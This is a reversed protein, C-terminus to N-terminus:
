PRHRVIWPRGVWAGRWYVPGWYAPPYPAYVWHDDAWVWQYWGPGYAVAPYYPGAYVFTPAGARVIYGPPCSTPATSGVAAGTVAGVAGGALAGVGRGTLAAGTIAGLAGGVIAGAATNGTRQNVCNAAAWRAYQDAYSQAAAQAQADSPAPAAPDSNDSASRAYAPQQSNPQGSAPATAQQAWATPTQIVASSAALAALSVGVTKLIHRSKM